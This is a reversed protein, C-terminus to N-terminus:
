QRTRVFLMFVDGANCLISMRLPNRIEAWTLQPWELLEAGFMLRLRSCYVSWNRSIDEWEQSPFACFVADVIDGADLSQVFADAGEINVIMEVFSFNASQRTVIQTAHSHQGNQRFGNLIDRQSSRPMSIRAHRYMQHVSVVGPRMLPDFIQVQQQGTVAAHLMGLILWIHGREGLFSGVGTCMGKTGEFDPRKSGDAPEVLFMMHDVQQLGTIAALTLKVLPDQEERAALIVMAQKWSSAVGKWLLDAVKLGKETLAVGRQEIMSLGPVPPAVAVFGLRVLLLICEAFAREWDTLNRVAFPYVPLDKLREWRVTGKTTLGSVALLIMEFIHASWPCVETFDLKVEGPRHRFHGCYQMSDPWSQTLQWFRRFEFEPMGILVKTPKGLWDDWKVVPLVPPLLAGHAVKAEFRLTPFFRLASDILVIVWTGPALQSSIHAAEEQADDRTIMFIKHEHDPKKGRRLRNYLHYCAGLPVVITLLSPLEPNKEVLRNAEPVISNIIDGEEPTNGIEINALDPHIVKLSHVTATTSSHQFTNAIGEETWITKLRPSLVIVNSSVPITVQALRLILWAMSIFLQATYRGGHTDFVITSNALVPAHKEDTCMDLMKIYTKFQVSGAVDPHHSTFEAIALDDPMVWILGNSIQKKVAKIAAESELASSCDCRAHAFSVGEYNKDRLNASRFAKEWVPALHQAWLADNKEM